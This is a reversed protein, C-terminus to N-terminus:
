AAAASANGQNLAREKRQPEKYTENRSLVHFAAEALHRAVAGVAKQHGRRYAVRQYLRTVHHDPHSKAHLRVCNAAEVFAWKLYRNVDPRLRGFRMKDGSAHMRPTTGAYSALREATAFRTVEGIELAIVVSLIDGVGPLTKLLQMAPTAGILERIQKEQEEIQTTVLDLQCLLAETMRRTNPPLLLSVVQLQRRGRRGFVDSCDEVALAFKTLNAQIRNKLRARQQSFFMRTRPLDRLDRLPGPAIWVTPLTGTRQLRNLGHVDLKDTKNICGIMLKAKRPHVLRPVGGAQEIEDVIWYWNGTAEVAVPTGPEIDALYAAIAGRQHEIRTLRARGSVVGEREALSYRKHADLSIYDKM